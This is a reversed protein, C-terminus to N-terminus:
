FRRQAVTYNAQFRCFSGTVSASVTITAFTHVSTSLDGTAQIIMQGTGSEGPAFTEIETNGDEKLVATKTRTPQGKPYSGWTLFVPSGAHQTLTVNTAPTGTACELALEGIGPVSLFNPEKQKDLMEIWNGGQTGEGSTYGSAAVGGLKASDAAQEGKGLYRGDSETRNFFNATDVTGVAGQGGQPGQPGLPGQPGQPGALGRPGSNGKLKKIVKPNIQKTSSIVYRSAALSTGGMAVFLALWAIANGRVATIIRSTM